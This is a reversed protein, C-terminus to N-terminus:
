IRKFFFGFCAFVERIVFLLQSFQPFFFLNSFFLKNLLIMYIVNCFNIQLLCISEKHSIVKELQM